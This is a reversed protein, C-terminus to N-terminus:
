CTRIKIYKRKKFNLEAKFSYKNIETHTAGCKAISFKLTTHGTNCLLEEIATNKEQTSSLDLALMPQRNPVKGVLEM